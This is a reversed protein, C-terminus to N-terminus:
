RRMEAVGQAVACPACLRASVQGEMDQPLHRTIVARKDCVGADDPHADACPCECERLIWATANRWSELLERVAPDSALKHFSETTVAATREAWEAAVTGAARCAAVFQRVPNDDGRNVV